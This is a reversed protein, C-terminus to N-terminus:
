RHTYACPHDESGPCRPATPTTRRMTEWLDNIGAIIRAAEETNGSVREIEQVAEYRTLHEASM